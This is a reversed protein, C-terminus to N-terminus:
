SRVSQYVKLFSGSFTWRWRQVVRGSTEMEDRPSTLTPELPFDFQFPNKGENYICERSISNSQVNTKDRLLYRAELSSPLLLETMLVGLSIM